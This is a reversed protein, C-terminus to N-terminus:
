EGWDFLDTIDKNRQEVNKDREIKNKEREPEEYFISNLNKIVEENYKKLDSFEERLSKHSHKLNEVDRELENIRKVLKKKPYFLYKFFNTM